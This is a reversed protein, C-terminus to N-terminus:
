LDLADAEVYVLEPGSSQISLVFLRGGHRVLDPAHRLAPVRPDEVAAALSRDRNLLAIKM